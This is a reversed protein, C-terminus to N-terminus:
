RRTRRAFPAEESRVGTKSLSALREGIFTISAGLVKKNDYGGILANLKSPAVGKLEMTITTLNPIARVLNDVITVTAKQSTRSLPNLDM